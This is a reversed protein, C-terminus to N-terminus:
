GMPEPRKEWRVVLRWRPGDPRGVPPALRLYLKWPGVMFILRRTSHTCYNVMATLLNGECVHRMVPRMTM